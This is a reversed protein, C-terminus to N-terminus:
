SDSVSKEYKKFPADITLDLLQLLHVMNKPVMVLEIDVKSIRDMVKATLQVKFTDWVLLCTQAELLAKENKKKEIYPVLVNISWITEIKYSWYKKNFALCFGQPFNVHISKKEGKKETGDTHLTIIMTPLKSILNRMWFYHRVGLM